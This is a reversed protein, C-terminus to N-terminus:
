RKCKQFTNRLLAPGIVDTNTNYPRIEATDTPMPGEPLIRTGAWTVQHIPREIRTLIVSHIIPPDPYPQAINLRGIYANFDGLTQPEPLFTAAFLTSYGTVSFEDERIWVSGGARQHGGIPLLPITCFLRIIPPEPICIQQGIMLFRPDVGPNLAIIRDVPVGLRQSILWFTDGPQIIYPSAGIPCSRLSPNNYQLYM